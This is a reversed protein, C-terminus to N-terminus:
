VVCEVRNRSRLTVGCAIPPRMEAFRRRARFPGNCAETASLRCVRIRSSGAHTGSALIFRGDARADADAVLASAAAAGVALRNRSGFSAAAEFEHSGQHSRQEAAFRHARISGESNFGRPDFRHRSSRNWKCATILARTRSMSASKCRRIRSSLRPERFGPPQRRPRLVRIEGGESGKEQGRKGLRRGSGM